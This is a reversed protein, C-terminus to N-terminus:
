ALHTALADPDALDTLVRHIRQITADADALHRRTDHLRHLRETSAAAKLATRKSVTWNASLIRLYDRPSVPQDDLYALAVNVTLYTSADRPDSIVAIAPALRDAPLTDLWAQVHTLARAAHTDSPDDLAQLLGTKTAYFDAAHRGGHYPTYTGYFFDQGLWRRLDPTVAIDLDPDRLSPVVAGLNTAAVPAPLGLAARRVPPHALLRVCARVADDDGMDADTLPRLDADPHSTLAADLWASIDRTSLFPANPLGLTARLLAHFPSSTGPLGDDLGPLDRHRTHIFTTAEGDASVLMVQRVERRPGNNDTAWGETVLAVGDWDQLNLCALEHYANVRGPKDAPPLQVALTDLPGSLEPGGDASGQAVAASIGPFRAPDLLGYVVAPQDWQDDLAHVTLLALGLHTLSTGGQTTVAGTGSAPTPDFTRPTPTWITM